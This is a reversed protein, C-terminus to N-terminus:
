RKSKKENHESIIAARASGLRVLTLAEWPELDIQMQLAWARLVDWTVVPPAMGNLPLGLALETWWAWLYSAEFPLVPGSDPATAAAPSKM